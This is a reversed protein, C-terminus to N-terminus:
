WQGGKMVAQVRMKSDKQNWYREPLQVAWGVLTYLYSRWDVTAGERLITPPIVAKGLGDHTEPCMHFPRKQKKRM